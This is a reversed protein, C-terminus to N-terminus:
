EDGGPGMAMQLARTTIHYKALMYDVEWQPLKGASLYRLYRETVKRFHAEHGIFHAEPVSVQWGHKWFRLSLGPYENELGALAKRLASRLEDPDVGGAPEVYLQPRYDQEKGQRIVIWARSGRYLSYHTDGAGPPAEFNWTVALKVHVGKVAYIMEGNSYYPLVGEDNLKGKLFDPFDTAGTVKAYQQRTLLTPRREAHLVVVDNRFEIPEAPFCTWMVLDILHTTVDVLGQGQQATDFYWTPRRLPRGSVYKFFHHVSETVISPDDPTGPQLEGFVDENLVLRKQLVRLTNYRETMIDYLLLGRERATAFARELVDFGAADICMPKDSFVNFGGDIAAMIYETKKQNNGSLVVVHGARQALMKELYDPGVYVQRRWSTPHEPRRNFGDIRGLYERVEPGDPAYVHVTPDVQEYMTKQVLAAHYHGPNLVVLGVRGDAALMDHTARGGDACSLLAVIGCSGLAVWRLYRLM